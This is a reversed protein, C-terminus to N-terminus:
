AATEHPHVKDTVQEEPVALQTVSAVSLQEHAEMEMRPTHSLAPDVCHVVTWNAQNRDRENAISGFFVDTPQTFPKRDNDVWKDDRWIDGDTNQVAIHIVMAGKNKIERGDRYQERYKDPLCKVVEQGAVLGLHQRVELVALAANWWRDVEAAQKAAPSQNSADILQRMLGPGTMLFGPALLEQPVKELLVAM